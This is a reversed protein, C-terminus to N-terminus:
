SAEQWCAELEDLVEHNIVNKAGDDINIHGVAGVQEYSVTM